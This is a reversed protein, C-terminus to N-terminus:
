GGGGRGLCWHKARAREIDQGVKRVVEDMVVVFGLAARIGFGPAMTGVLEGAGGGCDGETASVEQRRGSSRGLEPHPGRMM